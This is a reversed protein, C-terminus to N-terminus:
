RHTTKDGKHNQQYKVYERWFNRTLSDGFTCFWEENKPTVIIWKSFMWECRLHDLEHAVIDPRIRNKVLHIEGFRGRRPHEWTKVFYGWRGGGKRKFTNPHVDHLYVEFFQKRRNFFVRFNDM